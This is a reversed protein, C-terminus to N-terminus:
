VRCVRTFAYEKIIVSILVVMAVVVTAIATEAAAVM